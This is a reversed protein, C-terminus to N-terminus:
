KSLRQAAYKVVVGAVGCPRVPVGVVKKLRRYKAYCPM